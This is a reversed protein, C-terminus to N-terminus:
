GGGRVTKLNENFREQLYVGDAYPELWHSRAYPNYGTQYNLLHGNRSIGNYQYRSYPLDNWLVGVVNDGDSITFYANEGELHALHDKPMTQSKVLDENLDEMTMAMAKKLDESFSRAFEPNINIRVDVKM